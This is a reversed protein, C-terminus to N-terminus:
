GADALSAVDSLELDIGELTIVNGSAVHYPSRGMVAVKGGKKDVLNINVIANDGSVKVVEFQVNVKGITGDILAEFNVNKIV